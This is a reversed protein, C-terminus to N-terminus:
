YQLTILEYLQTGRHLGVPIHAQSYKIPVKSASM